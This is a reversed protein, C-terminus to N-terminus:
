EGIEIEIDDVECLPEFDETRFDETLDDAARRAWARLDGETVPGVVTFTVTNWGKM